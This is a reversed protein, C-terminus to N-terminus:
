SLTNCIGLSHKLFPWARSRQQFNSFPSVSHPSSIIHLSNPQLFPMLPHSGSGKRFPKTVRVSTLLSHPLSSLLPRPKKLLKASFLLSVMPNNGLVLFLPICSPLLFLDIINIVSPFTSLTEPLPTHDRAHLVAETEATRFLLHSEPLAPPGCQLQGSYDREM